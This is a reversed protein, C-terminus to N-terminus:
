ADPQEEECAFVGTQPLPVFGLEFDPGPRLQPGGQSWAVEIQNGAGPIAELSALTSRRAALAGVQTPFAHRVAGGADVDVLRYEVYYVDRSDPNFIPMTLDVTLPYTLDTAQMSEAATNAMGTKYSSEHWVKFDIRNGSTTQGPAHVTMTFTATGDLHFVLGLGNIPPILNSAVVVDNVIMKVAQGIEDAALVDQDGDGDFDGIAPTSRYDSNVLAPGNSITLIESNTPYSIFSAANPQKPDRRNWLRILSQGNGLTFLLDDDGDMDMDGSTLKTVKLVSGLDNPGEHSNSEHFTYLEQKGNVPLVWSVRSRQGMQTIPAIADGPLANPVDYVENGNGAHVRLGQNTLFAIEDGGGDAYDTVLVDIIEAGVDFQIGSSLPANVDGMMHLLRVTNNIDVGILELGGTGDIDGVAIQVISNWTKGSFHRRQIEGIGPNLWFFELGGNGVVAVVDLGDPSSGPIVVFDEATRPLPMPHPYVGPGYLIHPTDNQMLVADLVGDASMNAKEMKGFKISPSPEFPSLVTPNQALGGTALFLSLSVFASLRPLTPNRLM